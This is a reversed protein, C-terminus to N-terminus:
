DIIEIFKLILIMFEIAVTFRELKLNRCVWVSGFRVTKRHNIAKNIYM